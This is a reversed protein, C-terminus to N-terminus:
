ADRGVGKQIGIPNSSLVNFRQNPLSGRVKELLAPHFHSKMQFNASQAPIGVTILYNLLQTISAQEKRRVSTEREYSGYGNVSTFWLRQSAVLGARLAM